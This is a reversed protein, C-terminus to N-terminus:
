PAPMILTGPARSEAMVKTQRAIDAGLQPDGLMGVTVSVQSTTSTEKKVNVSVKTGDATKASAVGDVATSTATIDKLGREELVSRAAVTTAQTGAAVTTWQSRYDSKVGEEHRSACGMLGTVLVAAMLSISRLM